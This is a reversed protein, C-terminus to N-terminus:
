GMLKNKIYSNKKNWKEKIENDINIKYLEEVQRYHDYYEVRSKILNQKHKNVSLSCNKVKFFLDEEKSGIQLPYENSVNKVIKTEEIIKKAKRKNEDFVYNEMENEIEDSYM